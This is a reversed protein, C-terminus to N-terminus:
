QGSRNGNIVVGSDELITDVWANSFDGSEVAANYAAEADARENLRRLLDDVFDRPVVVVGNLDGIILDGPNVVVGGCAIPYNIEGPGRHMPGIPTVGRAFVPFDGLARIEPLDRIIGDVVFGAISRHRAKKSVLDGLVATLPSRSGDCVIVDGPKAIDLAKHVMLNDGPYCKVTVAPGFITLHEETLNHIEPVMTNLRNLQDSVAPTEFRRYGDITDKPPREIELRVRFGPGPHMDATKPKTAGTAAKTNAQATM